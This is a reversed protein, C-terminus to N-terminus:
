PRDAENQPKSGKGPREPKEKEGQSKPLTQDRADPNKAMAGAVAHGDKLAMVYGDAEAPLDQFTWGFLSGYFDRARDLDDVMVDAWCPTGPEFSEEHVPM